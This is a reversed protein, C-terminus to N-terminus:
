AASTVIKQNYIQEKQKTEKIYADVISSPSFNNKLRASKVCYKAFKLLDKRDINM